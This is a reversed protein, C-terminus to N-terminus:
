RRISAIEEQNSIANMDFGAAVLVLVLGIGAFIQSTTVSTIFFLTARLWGVHRSERAGLKLM